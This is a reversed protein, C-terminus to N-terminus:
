LILNKYSNLEILLAICAFISNIKGDHTRLYWTYPSSQIATKPSSSLQSLSIPFTTSQYATATFFSEPSVNPWLGFFIEWIHLENRCCPYASVAVTVPRWQYEDSKTGQPLDFDKCLFTSYLIYEQYLEVAMYICAGTKQLVPGDINEDFKEIFHMWTFM